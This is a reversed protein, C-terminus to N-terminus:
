LFFFLLPIWISIGEDIYSRRTSNWWVYWWWHTGRRSLTSKIMLCTSTAKYDIRKLHDLFRYFPERHLCLWNRQKSSVLGGLIL